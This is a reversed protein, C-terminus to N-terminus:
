KVQGITKDMWTEVDSPLSGREYNKSTYASFSEAFLESSNTGGYRSITNNGVYKDFKKTFENRKSNSLTRNWVDHGYEHRFTAEAGKGVVHGGFSPKDDPNSRLKDSVEIREGLIYKGSTSKEDSFDRGLELKLPRATNRVNKKVLKHGRMRSLEGDIAQAQKLFEADDLKGPLIDVKYESFFHDEADEVSDFRKGTPQQKGGNKIQDREKPTLTATVDSPIFEGGEFKKGEITVGGAPAHLTESFQAPRIFEAPPMMRQGDVIPWEVFMEQLPPMAEAMHDDRSGGREEALRDAERLWDKAVQVGDRAALTVSVPSGSCRCSWSWPPRFTEWVPDDKHFINTGSLGQTTGMILHNEGNDEPRGRRVRNDRTVSYRRFPFADVVFPNALAREQGDSLAAGVNNRFVMRVRAESLPTGQDALLTTVDELFQTKNPGTAINEALIDRVDSITEATMDGTIAFMGERVADATERFNEGAFVEAENLVKVADEVVPFRIRPRGQFLETLKVPPDLPPVAPPDIMDAARSVVDGAGVVSSAIAADTGIDLMDVGLERLIEEVRGVTEPSDLANKKVTGRIKALAKDVRSSYAATASETIDDAMSNTSDSPGAESFQYVGVLGNSLLEGRVLVLADLFDDSFQVESVAPLDDFSLTGELIDLVDASTAVREVGDVELAFRATKNEMDFPLGRKMNVGRDKLLTAAQSINLKKKQRKARQKIREKDRDSLKETVETPIFQGGPFDKGKIKIGGVPARIREEAFQQGGLPQGNPPQGNPQQGNMQPVQSPQGGMAGGGMATGQVDEAFEELISKPKMVYQPDGGFMLWAAPRIVQRDVQSVIDDFESQVAQVTMMLPVSRGSFGSGSAAAEIVEPAIDAGKMINIDQRDEWEFAAGQVGTSTPGSEIEVLRRNQGDPNTHMPLAITAGSLMNEQIERVADRWPITKIVGGEEYEFSQNIPYFMQDGRVSYKIMALQGLKKAGHDMWKEYWDPYQRNLLGQGWPFGADADFSMWLARPSWVEDAKVRFGVPQGRFTRPRVDEWEFEKCSDVELMGDDSTEWNIQVAHYGLRKAKTLCSRNLKWLTEWTQKVFKGVAENEAAIEVDAMSLIADRISFSFRVISDTRWMTRGIRITFRPLDHVTINEDVFPRRPKYGATPDGKTVREKLEERPQRSFLSLFKALKSPM